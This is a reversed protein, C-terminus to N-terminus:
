TAVNILQHKFFCFSNNIEINSFKLTSPCSKIRLMWSLMNYSDRICMQRQRRCLKLTSRPPRRIM